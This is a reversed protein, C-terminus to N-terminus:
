QPSKIIELEESYREGNAQDIAILRYVYNGPPFYEPLRLRVTDDTFSGGAELILRKPTSRPYATGDPLTLVRWYLLTHSLASQNTITETLYLRDSGDAAVLVPESDNHIQLRIDSAPTHPVLLVTQTGSTLIVQHNNVALPHSHAFLSAQYGKSSLLEAVPPEATLDYLRIEDGKYAPPAVLLGSDNLPYRAYPYNPNANPGIFRLGHQCDGLGDNDVDGIFECVYLQGQASGNDTSIIVHNLANVAVATGSGAGGDLGPVPLPLASISFDSDILKVFPTRLGGTDSYAGSILRTNNHQIDYYFQSTGNTDASVRTNYILQGNRYLLFQEDPTNIWQKAALLGSNTMATVTFPMAFEAGQVPVVECVGDALLCTALTANSSQNAYIGAIKNYDNISMPLFDDMLTIIEQKNYDFVFGMSRGNRSGYGVVLGNNNIATFANFQGVDPQYPLTVVDYAAPIVAARAESAGQSVAVAYLAIIVSLIVGWKYNCRM